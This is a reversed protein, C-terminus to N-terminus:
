RHQNTPQVDEACLRDLDRESHLLRLEVPARQPLCITVAEKPCLSMCPTNVLHLPHESHDKNWRKVTKKLKALPRVKDDGRLKKQCKRCALLLEGHWTPPYSNPSAAKSM